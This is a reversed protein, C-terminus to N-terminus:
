LFVSRLSALNNSIATLVNPDEFYPTRTPDDPWAALGGRLYSFWGNKAFDFQTLKFAVSRGFESPLAQLIEKARQNAEQEVVNRQRLIAWFGFAAMVMVPLLIFVAQWLLAPPPRKM